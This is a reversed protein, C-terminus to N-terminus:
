ISQKPPYLTVGNRFNDEVIGRVQEGLESAIWTSGIQLDVPHATPIINNMWTNGWKCSVKSWEIHLMDNEVSISKVEGRYSTRGIVGVARGGIYSQLTEHLWKWRYDKAPEGTTVSYVLKNESM